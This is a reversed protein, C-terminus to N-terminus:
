FSMQPIPLAAIDRCRLPAAKAGHAAPFRQSGHRRGPITHRRMVGGFGSEGARWAAMRARQAPNFGASVATTCGQSAGDRDAATSAALAVASLAFTALKM